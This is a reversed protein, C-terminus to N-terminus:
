TSKTARLKTSLRHPSHPCDVQCPRDAPLPRVTWKKLHPVPPKSAKESPGCSGASLGGPGRPRDALDGRVTRGLCRLNGLNNAEQTASGHQKSNPNSGLTPLDTTVVRGQYVRTLIRPQSNPACISNMRQFSNKDAGM